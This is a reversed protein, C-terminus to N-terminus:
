SLTICYKRKSSLPILSKHIHLVPFYFPGESLAQLSTNKSPRQIKLATNINAQKHINHM